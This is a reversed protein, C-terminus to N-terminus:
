LTGLKVAVLRGKAQFEENVTVLIRGQADEVMSTVQSTAERAGPKYGPLLSSLDIWKDGNDSSWALYPLGKAKDWGSVVLTNPKGAPALLSTIYMYNSGGSVAQEIVFKFSRGSDDSRLLGGEVGAFVRESGAVSSIFQVNRNELKPLTIPLETKSALASNDANMQYARIYAMDLPCEGGVLLRNGILHFAQNTCAMSEMNGIIARWTAGQDSSMQLNPAGGANAYWRTGVVQVDDLSMTECYSTYCIKFDKDKPAFSLKDADLECLTHEEPSGWAPQMLLTKAGVQKLHAARRTEVLDSTPLACAGLAVPRWSSRADLARATHLIASGATATNTLTLYANKSDLTISQM